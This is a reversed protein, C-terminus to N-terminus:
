ATARRRLLVLGGLGALMLPLTPPIPIVTQDEPREVSTSLTTLTEGTEPDGSPFWPFRQDEGRRIFGVM